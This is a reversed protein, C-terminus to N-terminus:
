PLEPLGERHNVAIRRAEDRSLRKTSSRRMPEEDFYVYALAQGADDTVVFSEQLQEVKRPPPFRRPDTMSVM